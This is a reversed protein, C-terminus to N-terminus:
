HLISSYFLPSLRYARKSHEWLVDCSVGLSSIVPRRSLFSRLFYWEKETPGSEDFLQDPSRSLDAITKRTVQLAFLHKPKKM